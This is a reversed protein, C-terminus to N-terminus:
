AAQGSLTKLIRQFREGASSVTDLIEPDLEDDLIVTEDAMSHERLSLAQMTARLRDALFMALARYFRCAFGPDRELKELLLAKEIFLAFCRGRTTVTASAPASEVFSMEGVIDGAGLRAIQGMGKKTVLFEGELLLILFDASSDEEIVIDADKLRRIFGLRALAEVDGDTLVGFIYLVKRM